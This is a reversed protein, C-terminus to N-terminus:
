RLEHRQALGQVAEPSFEPLEISLGVNFPSQNINMPIYVETSHVVVLRLKKWLDKDKAEEHWARLLGFFDAAIEPHQFVLDVEDLGLALPSSIESLIYREFYNTCNVKAGLIRSWNGELREPLGLKWSVSACFWQLFEKLDAFVSGDALQFSLPVTQYGQEGAQQLVRAMLSTKGMQRPAKIRILAGPTVIEEYCKGEIPPREVYFSSVLKVQGEPLEPEAIPLPPHQLDEPPAPPTRVEAELPPEPMLGGGMVQVMEQLIVATDAPSKWERQQIRQLYGRLDYNLPSSFPFNVRIPLLVPKRPSRTDHLQKARRVEETVMESTASQPSLLLLFYDCRELEQDIRVSWDEGLRISEGALFVHHGAAQLATYFEQALSLDPEKTRYSIFVRKPHDTTPLPADGTSKSMPAIAPQSVSAQSVSAQSVPAKGKRKAKLVPTLHEPITELQIRNCGFAFADEVSRGAGVAGYFGDAFAIAARDGIAQKMGVVYPIHKAIAVAQQESYCANLVVCEVQAKFLKFLGALAGASVLQAQGVANEFALGAAGEGHGCFHVIQPAFDSLVQQLDGTQVAWEAVVVFGDRGQSLRLRQKIARVEEDLRLRSTDKPNAALILIKQTQPASSMCNEVPPQNVRLIVKDYRIVGARNIM